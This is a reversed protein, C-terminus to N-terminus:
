TLRIGILVCMGSLVELFSRGEWLRGEVERAVGGVGLGVGDVGYGRTGWCGAIDM